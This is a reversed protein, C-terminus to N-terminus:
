GSKGPTSSQRSTFTNQQLLTMEHFQSKRGEQGTIQPFALQTTPYPYCQATDVASEAEM